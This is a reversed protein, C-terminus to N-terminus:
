FRQQLSLTVRAVDINGRRWQREYNAIVSTLTPLDIRAGGAVTNARFDGIRDISLNDFDEVGAAYATHLWVRPHLRYAGRLHLSHGMVLTSVTSIDTFSMAYRLGLSVRESAFCTVDPSLVTTRAGTFDFYRVGLTWVAPGETHELEGRYDGEPMVVNDPGVLVQGRLITRSKWQWEVGEATISTVTQM